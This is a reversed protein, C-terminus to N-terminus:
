THEESRNQIAVPRDLEDYASLLSAGGVHSVGVAFHRATGADAKDRTPRAGAIGGDTQVRCELVRSRHDEENTLDPGMHYLAFAKLLDVIAAHEPRDALPDTLDIPGVANGLEDATGEM